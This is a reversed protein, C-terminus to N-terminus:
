ADPHVGGHETHFMFDDQYPPSLPDDDEVASFQPDNRGTGTGFDGASSSGSSNSGFLRSLGSLALLVGIGLMVYGFTGM